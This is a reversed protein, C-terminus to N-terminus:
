MCQGNICTKPILGSPTLIADCLCGESSGSCIDVICAVGFGGNIQKQENKSLEKGISSINKLMIKLHKIILIGM